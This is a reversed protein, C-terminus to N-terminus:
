VYKRALTISENKALCFEKKAKNHTTKKWKKKMAKNFMKSSKIQSTCFKSFSLGL